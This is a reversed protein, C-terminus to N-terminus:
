GRTGCCHHRTGPRATHRGACGHDLSAAYYRQWHAPPLQAPATIAEAETASRAGAVIGGGDAPTPAGAILPRLAHGASIWELISGPQSPWDSRAAARRTRGRPEQARGHQFHKGFTM